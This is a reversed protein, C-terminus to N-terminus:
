LVLMKRKKHPVTNEGEEGEEHGSAMSSAREAVAIAAANDAAGAAAVASLGAMLAAGNMGGGGSNAAAAAAALLQSRHNMYLSGATNGASQFGATVASFSGAGNTSLSLSPASTLLPSTSPLTATFSNVGIAVDNGAGPGAQIDLQAKLKQLELPLTSGGTVGNPSTGSAAPKAYPDQQNNTSTLPGGTLSNLISHQSQTPPQLVLSPPPQLVVQHQAQLETNNHQQQQVDGKNQQGSSIAAGASAGAGGSSAAQAAVAAQHQQHQQLLQAQANILAQQLLTQVDIGEPLLGQLGMLAQSTSPAAPNTPAAPAAAPAQLQM